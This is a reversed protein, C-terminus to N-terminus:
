KILKIKLVHNDRVLTFDANVYGNFIAQTHIIDWVVEPHISCKITVMGKHPIHVCVEVPLHGAHGGGVITLNHFVPTEITHKVFPDVFLVEKGDVWMVRKCSAWAAHKENEHINDLEAFRVENTGHRIYMNVHAPKNKM